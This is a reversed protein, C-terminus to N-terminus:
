QPKNAWKMFAKVISESRESPEMDGLKRPRPTAANGGASTVPEREAATNLSASAQSVLKDVLGRLKLTQEYSLNVAKQISDTDWMLLAAETIGAGPFQVVSKAHILEDIEAQIKPDTIFPFATERFGRVTDQFRTDLEVRTQAIEQELQQRKTAQEQQELERQRQEFQYVKVMNQADERTKWSTLKDPDGMCVTQDNTDFPLGAYDAGLFNGADEFNGSSILSQWQAALAQQPTQSEQAPPAAQAIAEQEQKVQTILENVRAKYDNREAAVARLSQQMAELKARLDADEPPTEGGGADESETEAEPEAEAPESAEPAEAGETGTDSPSASEGTEAPAAPAETDTPAATDNAPADAFMMEATIAGTPDDM